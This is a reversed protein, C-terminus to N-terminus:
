SIIATITYLNQGLVVRFGCPRHESGYHLITGIIEQVDYGCGLDSWANPDARGMKSHWTSTLDFPFYYCQAQERVQSMPNPSLNSVDVPAIPCEKM